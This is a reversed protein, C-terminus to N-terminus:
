MSVFVHQFLSSEKQQLRGVGRRGGPSATCAETRLEPLVRACEQPNSRVKARFPVVARVMGVDPPDMPWKRRRGFTAYSM